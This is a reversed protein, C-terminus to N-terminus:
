NRSTLTLTTLLETKGYFIKNALYYKLFIRLGTLHILIKM